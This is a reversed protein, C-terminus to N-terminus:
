KMKWYGVDPPQTMIFDILLSIFIWYELKNTEGLYAETSGKKNNGGFWNWRGENTSVPAVINATPPTMTMPTPNVDPHMERWRLSAAVLAKHDHSERLPTGM